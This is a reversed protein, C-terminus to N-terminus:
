LSGGAVFPKPMPMWATVGVARFGMPEDLFKGNRWFAIRTEGYLTVLVMHQDDGPLAEAVPIWRMNMDEQKSM